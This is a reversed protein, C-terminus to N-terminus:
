CAGTLVLLVMVVVSCSSSQMEGVLAHRRCCKIGEVSCQLMADRQEGTHKRRKGKHRRSERSGDRYLRRKTFNHFPHRGEFLALCARLAGLRAEM